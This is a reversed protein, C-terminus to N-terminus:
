RDIDCAVFVPEPLGSPPLVGSAATIAEWSQQFGALAERYYRVHEDNSVFLVSRLGQLTNYALYRDQCRFIFTREAEGSDLILGGSIIGLPLGGGPLPQQGADFFPWSVETDVAPEQAVSAAGSM